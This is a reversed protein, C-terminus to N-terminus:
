IHILSLTQASQTSEAIIAEIIDSISRAIFIMKGRKDLDQEMAEDLLEKAIEYGTPSIRYLIGVALVSAQTGHDALIVRNWGERLVLYKRRNPSLDDSRNYTLIDLVVVHLGITLTMVISYSGLLWGVISTGTLTGVVLSIIGTIIAIIFEGREARDSADQHLEYISQRIQAPTRDEDKIQGHKGILEKIDERFQLIPEIGFVLDILDRLRGKLPIEGSLWPGLIALSYFIMFLSVAAVVPIAIIIFLTYFYIARRAERVQSRLQTSHSM